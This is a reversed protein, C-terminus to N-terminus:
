SAPAAKKQRAARIAELRRKLVTVKEDAEKQEREEEELRAMMEEREERAEREAREEETEQEEGEEEEGGEPAEEGEAAVVPAGFEFRVPQARITASATKRGTAPPPASSSGPLPTPASDDALFAEFAAWDPDDAAAAAAAATPAGNGGGAAVPANAPSPVRPAPAESPNAFFGAPLAGDHEQPPDDDDDDRARKSPADDPSDLKRKKAQAAAAAQEAEFRQVAVRHGKSQTHAGWLTEHKVPLQCLSCSLANTRRSYDAFPATIRQSTSSAKKAQMLSKLSAM